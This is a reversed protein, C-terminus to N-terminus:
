SSLATSEILAPATAAGPTSTPVTLIRVYLAHNFAGTNYVFLQWAGSDIQDELPWEVVRSDTVIFAGAEAPLIAVGAAGIAWGVEGRPGPPVEVDIRVVQRPPMALNFTLPASRPTGAPVVIPFEHVETAM